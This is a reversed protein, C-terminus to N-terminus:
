AQGPTEFPTVEGGKVQWLTAMRCFSDTFMDRDAATLVAQNAESVAQLLDGRRQSDLEALVEDLLLVPWESTRERLWAVEALKLALMATRNQGRSGYLHLDLGNALFRFDDRHPGIQTAGRRIDEDLGAQWRELMGRQLDSRNISAHDIPADMQLGLQGHAQLLPDYAPAYELRLTERGRSLRAHIPEAHAELERLAIARARMLAAAHEALQEDWVRLQDADRRVEQFQKLLANRQTLAKGYASLAETYVPDAQSIIDDLQRRRGSPSGEIVQMDQPLFLVANFTSPLDSVRRKVGNILVDKRLRAEAPPDRADLVIRIEVRHIRDGKDIEALLRSFPQAERMALFNILQRDSTTHTSSASTLYYIAELFSTKGQANDGILLSPGPPLQAELRIFNRFNTLSLHRLLM